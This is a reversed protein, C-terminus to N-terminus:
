SASVLEFLPPPALFTLAEDPAVVAAVGADSHHRATAVADFDLM